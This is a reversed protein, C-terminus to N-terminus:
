KRIRECGNNTHRLMDNLTNFRSQCRRCQHPNPIHIHKIHRRVDSKAGNSLSQYPCLLCSWGGAIKELNRAVQERVRNEEEERDLQDIEQVLEEREVDERVERRVERVEEKEEGEIVGVGVDFAVLVRNIILREVIRGSLLVMLVLIVLLFIIDKPTIILFRDM